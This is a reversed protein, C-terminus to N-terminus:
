WRSWIFLLYVAFLCCLLAFLCCICLLYVACFFHIFLLLCCVCLLYVAFLCLLVTLIIEDSVTAVVELLAFARAAEEDGKEPASGAVTAMLLATWDRPWCSAQLLQTIAGAASSRVPHWSADDVDEAQLAKLLAAHAMQCLPGKLSEALEGILWNAHALVYPSPAAADYLCLM